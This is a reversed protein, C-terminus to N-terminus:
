EGGSAKRKRIHDLMRSKWSRDGSGNQNEDMALSKTTQLVEELFMKSPDRPDWQKWRVEAVLWLSAFAVVLTTGLTIFWLRPPFAKREPVDPPDLVMVTPIEKAEQVKAMEAEKTLIEFVTEQMKTRRYLDAFTVGLLPLERISPYLDGASLQTEQLTTGSKGGLRQLQQRLEAVRAETARVRVNNTTYIQKLGELESEAAILQGQLMVAAEVMTKGQEKIDITANKSSFESLEKEASELNQAVADLRGDLFIRERRASSTSLQAALRNLEAVYAGAILAARKPDRDSVTISIIGSKRDAVLSTNEKLRMEAVVNLHTGYVKKLNLQEIVADATSRSKLIGIFLDGTTKKGLMEGSMAGLDGAQGALAAIMAAGSSSKDEPPMLQATSEYRAPILFVIATVCLLGIGATRSLFRRQSWLLRLLSLLQERRAHKGERYVLGEQLIANALIDQEQNPSVQTM